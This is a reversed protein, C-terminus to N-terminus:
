DSASWLRDDYWPLLVKWEVSYWDSSTRAVFCARKRVVYMAWLAFRIGDQPYQNKGAHAPQYKTRVAQGYRLRRCLELRGIVQRDM